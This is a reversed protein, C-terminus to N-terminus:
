FLMEYRITDYRLAASLKVFDGLLMSENHHAPVNLGDQKRKRFVTLIKLSIKM